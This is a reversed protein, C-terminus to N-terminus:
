LGAFYGQDEDTLIHHNADGQTAATIIDWPAVGDKGLRQMRPPVIQFNTGVATFQRPVHPVPDNQNAIVLTADGLVRNYSSQFEETAIRPMGYAYVGKVQRSEEFLRSAILVAVAGGQSHGTIWFNKQALNEEQILRRLGQASQEWIGNAGNLFGEHVRGSIKTGQFNRALARGNVNIWDNFSGPSLDVESGRFAVLVDPENPKFFVYGEVDLVADRAAVLRITWGKLSFANSVRESSEAFRQAVACSTDDGCYSASAAAAMLRIKATDTLTQIRSPGTVAVPNGPNPGPRNGVGASAPTPAPEEAAGSAGTEGGDAVPAGATGNAPKGTTPKQPSQQNVEPKPSKPQVSRAGPATPEPAGPPSTGVAVTKCSWLVILCLLTLLRYSM